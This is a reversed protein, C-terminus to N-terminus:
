KKWIHLVYDNNKKNYLDDNNVREIHGQLLRGLRGLDVRYFITTCNSRFRGYANSGGHCLINEFLGRELLELSNGIGGAIAITFKWRM